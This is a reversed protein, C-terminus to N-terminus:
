VAHSPASRFVEETSEEVRVFHPNGRLSAIFLDLDDNSAVELRLHQIANERKSSSGLIYNADPGPVFPFQYYAAEPTSFVLRLYHVFPESEPATGAVEDGEPLNRWRGDDFAILMTPDNVCEMSLTDRLHERVIHDAAADDLREMAELLARATMGNACQRIRIDTDLDYVVGERCLIRVLKEVTPRTM